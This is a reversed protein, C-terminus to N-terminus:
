TLIAKILEAPTLLTKVLQEAVTNLEEDYSQYHQVAYNHNCFQNQIQLDQAYFTVLRFGLLAFMDFM